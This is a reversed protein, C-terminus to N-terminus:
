TLQPNPSLNVKESGYRFRIAKMSKTKCRHKTFQEKTWYWKKKSSSWGCGYEKLQERVPFTNGSIWLWSGCIEVEIGPLNSLKAIIDMFEEATETTKKESEYTNGKSDTHTDKYRAWWTKFESNIEKIEIGSGGNDPHFKRVLERYLSKGQEATRCDKFWKYM